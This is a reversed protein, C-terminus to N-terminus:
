KKPPTAVVQGKKKGNEYNVILDSRTVYLVKMEVKTGRELIKFSTIKCNDYTSKQIMEYTTKGGMPAVEILEILKIVARSYFKNQFEMSSKDKKLVVTLVSSSFGEQTSNVDLSELIEEHSVVLDAGTYGSILSSTLGKSQILWITKEVLDDVKLKADIERLLKNADLIEDNLSKNTAAVSM